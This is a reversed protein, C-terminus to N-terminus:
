LEEEIHHYMVHPIWGLGDLGTQCQGNVLQLLNEGHALVLLLELAYAAVQVCSEILAL